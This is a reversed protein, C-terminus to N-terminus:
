KSELRTGVRTSQESFQGERATVRAGVTIEDELKTPLPLALDLTCKGGGSVTLKLEEERIGSMPDFKGGFRYSLELTNGTRKLLTFTTVQIISLAGRTAVREVQWRGGIGIAEEPLPVEILTVLGKGMELAMMTRNEMGGGQAAHDLPGPKLYVGFIVGKPDLTLIGSSGELATVLNGVMSNPAPVGAEESSGKRWTIEIKGLSGHLSLPTTMTPFPFLKTQNNQTLTMDGRAVVTVDQSGKFAYRLPQM